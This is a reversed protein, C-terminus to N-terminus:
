TSKKSDLSQINQVLHETTMGIEALLENVDGHEIFHDPIGMRQIPAATYSVDHAYELLLM